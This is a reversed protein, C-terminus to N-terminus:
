KMVYKAKKTSGEKRIIGKKILDKLDRLTTDESVMPLVENFAPNQIFGYSQIYDVLKLQRESLAIQKGMKEKLKLDRSIHLVKDKIRSLENSLGESFYELWTTLDHKTEPEVSQLATYYASANRDYYEELSFFRKVDYGVKYLFLVAVARAVRGNGDLFPHIRVIEYHVIGATIVPHTDKVEDSALWKLFEKIQYYVEIAAPPRFTIEGTKTNRVVVQSKRFSGVDEKELIRETTLKHVRKVVEETISNKKNFQDIYSLVKRYNIVEQIDRERGRVGPIDAAENAKKAIALEMVRAAESIDLDNGELHTGHHVTRIIAEERFRAEWAPVLPANAIVERCAEVVGISKLIKNSITYNPSFM